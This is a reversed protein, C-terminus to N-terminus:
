AEMAWPHLNSSAQAQVIRQGPALLIERREIGLLHAEVHAARRDVVAGMDAIRPGDDDEVHQEPQQAVEVAGVVDAVHAVDGVDVVLDDHPRGLAADADILQGLGRRALEVLIDRREAAQRGVTSGRAVSCM